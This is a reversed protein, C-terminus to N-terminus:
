VTFTRSARLECALFGTNTSTIRLDELDTM